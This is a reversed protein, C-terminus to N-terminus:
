QQWSNVAGAFSVPPLSKLDGASASAHFKCSPIDYAWCSSPLMCIGPDQLAAGCATRHALVAVCRKRLTVAQVTLCLVIGITSSHQGMRANSCLNKVAPQSVNIALRSLMCWSLLQALPGHPQQCSRSQQCPLQVPGPQTCVVNKPADAISAAEKM